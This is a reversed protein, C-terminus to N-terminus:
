IPFFISFFQFFIKYQCLIVYKSLRLQAYLELLNFIMWTDCDDLLVIHVLLTYLKNNRDPINQENEFVPEIKACLDRHM